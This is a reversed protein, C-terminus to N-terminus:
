QETGNPDGRLTILQLDSFFRYDRKNLTFLNYGNIEAHAGILYDTVVRRPAGGGSKKQRLAHERHLEAVRRWVPRNLNWDIQIGNDILWEEAYLDRPSLEAVIPGCVMIESLSDLVEALAAAHAEKFRLALIINSDLCTITM